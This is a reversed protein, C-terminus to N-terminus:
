SHIANHIQPSPRLHKHVIDIVVIHIWGLVNLMIQMLYVHMRYKLRLVHLELQVVM